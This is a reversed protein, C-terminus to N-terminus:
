LAVKFTKSGVKVLYIQNSSAPIRVDAGTAKVAKVLVGSIRYVFITEVLPARKVVIAGPEAYVTIDDGRTDKIVTVAEEIINAFDGWATAARYSGSTGIPVYLKCADKNIKDFVYSTIPLPSYIQCHIESLGSCNYFADTGISRVTSPISVSSLSSCHKFAAKGILKVSTPIVISNLDSCRYFAGDGISTVSSPIEYQSSKKNPYSILSDRSKNFLVGEYSSYAANESDVIFHKLGTCSLFANKGISTVASPITISTLGSCGYFISEGLKTVGPPIIISTLSTCGNFADEGISTVTSPIIISELSVCGSFVYAELTKISSPISIASLGSCDFFALEEMYTVSSPVSYQPSKRNPYAILTDLEKNFLVGELSSYFHNNSDVTFQEIEFCGKFAGKGISTVSAPITMSTLGICNNFAKEGIYNVSSPITIAKLSKCYWFAANGISTISSSLTISQIDDCYSFAVEAISTVKYTANSFSVTTPIEIAGTYTGGSTVEVTSDSTTKYNIGGVTFTTQATASMMM